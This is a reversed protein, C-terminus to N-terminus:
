RPLEGTDEAPHQGSDPDRHVGGCCMAVPVQSLAPSSLSSPAIGQTSARTAKVRSGPRLAQMGTSSASTCAGATAGPVEWGPVMFAVGQGMHGPVSSVPSVLCRVGPNLGGSSGGLGPSARSPFPQQAARHTKFLAKKEKWSHVCGPALLRQEESESVCEFACVCCGPPSAAGPCAAIAM